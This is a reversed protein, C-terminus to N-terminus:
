PNELPLREESEGVWGHQQIPTVKDRKKRKLMEDECDALSATHDVKGREQSNKTRRSNVSTVNLSFSKLALQFVAAKSCHRQQAPNRSKEVTYVTCHVIHILVVVFKGVIDNNRQTTCCM